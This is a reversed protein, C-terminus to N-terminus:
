SRGQGKQAKNGLIDAGYKLVSFGVDDDDDDDDDVDKHVYFNFLSTKM